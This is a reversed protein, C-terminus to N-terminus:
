PMVEGHEPKRCLVNGCESTYCLEVGDSHNIHLERLKKECMKICTEMSSFKKSKYMKRQPLHIIFYFDHMENEGETTSVSM